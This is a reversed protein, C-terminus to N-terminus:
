ELLIKSKKFYLFSFLYVLICILILLYYNKYILQFMFPISAIVLYSVLALFKNKIKLFIYHHLHNNEPTFPHIGRMLRECYVRLMDLGYLYFICFIVEIPFKNYNYTQITIFSMVGGLLYSGSNGLYIKGNINFLLFLIGCIILNM